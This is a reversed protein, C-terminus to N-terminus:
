TEATEPLDEAPDLAFTHGITNLQGSIRRLVNILDLFIQSSAVSEPDAGVLRQYHVKQVEICWNKLQDGDALFQKALARDRSALVSIAADMRRLVKEYLSQLIARDDPHLVMKDHAHKILATCLNKDIIDGISELQSCFNLLGFQLQSDRPTMADTPIRSLYMKIATHLDDIRDDHKQVERALAVDHEIMARWSGEFMIKVEDALRLSERAANALAFVPSALAAPDLHTAVPRMGVPAGQPARQVLKTVLGGFALGAAAVGINFLSHFNAAQRTISGPSHGLWSELYSFGALCLLIAAGKLILNAFALQRGAPTPWGAVLSNFGIGLNAGLVVPILLGLSGAGAEGLALALGIAATSSQTVFTMITSFLLLLLRHHLLVGFVTEFDASHTLARAADSMIAMALYIFGLGLLSQGIGRITEGRCFQFGIVGVILFVAYYDFFHLAILQVMATIGINAGLLFVLVREPPIQSSSLFQLSLLTQATSSPAVAGIAAGSLVTTWSRQSMRELWAHLGHGLMRELGKRLFRIGFLILAVGGLINLLVM